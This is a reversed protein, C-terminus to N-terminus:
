EEVEDVAGSYVFGGEELQYWVDNTGEVLEGRITAIVTAEEGSSLTGAVADKTTPGERQNVNGDAKVKFAAVPTAGEVPPSAEPSPEPSPEPSRELFTPTGTAEPEEDLLFDGSDECALAALAFAALLFAALLTRPM